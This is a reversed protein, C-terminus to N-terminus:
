ALGKPNNACRPPRSVWLGAIRWTVSKGYFIPRHTTVTTADHHHSTTYKRTWRGTLQVSIQLPRAIGRGRAFAIELDSQLWLRVPQPGVASSGLELYFGWFELHGIQNIHFSSIPPFFELYSVSSELTLDPCFHFRGSRPRARALDFPM